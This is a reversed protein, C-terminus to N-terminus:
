RPTRVITSPPVPMGKLAHQIRERKPLRWTCIKRVIVISATVAISEWNLTESLHLLGAALWFDLAAPIAESFKAKSFVPCLFAAIGFLSCCQTCYQAYYQIGNEIPSM